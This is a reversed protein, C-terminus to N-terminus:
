PVVPTAIASGFNFAGGDAAILVYGRGSAFAAVIPANLEIKNEPISGYFAAGDQAYVGGDAGVAIYGQGDAPVFAAVIPANLETVSPTPDAAEIPQNDPATAPAGGTETVTAAESAATTETPTDEGVSVTQDPVRTAVPSEEIPQDSPTSGAVPKTAYHTYDSLVLAVLQPVPQSGWPSNTIVSCTVAPPDSADFCALIDAYDGNLITAKFAALGEAQSDYNKVGASNFDTDGAEVRETDWSNWTAESNESAAWAVMSMINNVSTPKSINLLQEVSYEEITVTM